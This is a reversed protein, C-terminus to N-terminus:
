ASTSNPPAEATPEERSEGMEPAPEKPEGLADLVEDIAADTRATAADLEELTPERGEDSMKRLADAADLYREAIKLGVTGLKEFADAAKLVDDMTGM